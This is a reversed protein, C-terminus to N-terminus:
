DSGEFLHCTSDKRLKSEFVVREGMLEATCMVTSTTILDIKAKKTYSFLKGFGKM